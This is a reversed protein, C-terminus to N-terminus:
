RLARLVAEPMENIVARWVEASGYWATPLFQWGRQEDILIINDRHDIAPFYHRHSNDTWDCKWGREANLEALRTVVRLNAQEQIKM